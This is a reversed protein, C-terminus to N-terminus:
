LPPEASFFSPDPSNPESLVLQFLLLVECKMKTLDLVTKIVLVHRSLNGSTKCVSEKTDSWDILLVAATKVVSWAQVLFHM